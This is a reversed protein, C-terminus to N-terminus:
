QNCPGLDIPNGKTTSGISWGSEGDLTLPGSAFRAFRSATALM